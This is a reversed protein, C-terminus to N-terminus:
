QTTPPRRPRGGSANSDTPQRLLLSGV